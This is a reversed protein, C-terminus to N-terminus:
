STPALVDAWTPQAAMLAAWTPYADMVDQWTWQSQSGGEPEDVVVFPFSWVRMPQAGWGPVLRGEDSEGLSIYCPDIGWGHAPSLNLLLVGADDILDDVAQREADTRTLLELVSEASKRQGDTITLANRRGLPRFVGRSVPRRRPGLGAVKVAMSRDPVGPHVLLVRGENVVAAATVLPKETTSYTVPVGYPMLYDYIIASRTTSGILPLPEGDVTKVIGVNGGADTRTVTVANIAPSGTDTITLRVRPPHNAAEVTASVTLTAM